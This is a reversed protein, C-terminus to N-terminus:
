QAFQRGYALAGAALFALVAVCLFVSQLTAITM